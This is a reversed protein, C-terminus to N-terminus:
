VLEGYEAIIAEVRAVDEPSDVGSTTKRGRYDVEVMKVKKGNYLFRMQELGEIQDAEYPSQPLTFYDKLADFTYAYLGVHRRVPSKEFLERAKEPKRVAPIVNKSFAMAYGAKDVLVTTGSYPTTKKSELLRDYEAWDLHVCPTFM